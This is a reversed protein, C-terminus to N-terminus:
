LKLQRKRSHAGGVQLWALLGGNPISKVNNVSDLQSKVKSQVELGGELAVVRNEEDTPLPELFNGDQGKIALGERRDGFDDEKKQFAEYDQISDEETFTHSLPKEPDARGIPSVPSNDSM